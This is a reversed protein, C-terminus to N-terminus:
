LTDEVPLEPLLFPIATTLPHMYMLGGHPQAIEAQIYIMEFYEDAQTIPVAVTLIEREAIEGIGRYRLPTIRGVGRAYHINVTTLQHQEILWKALASAKGKPLICTIVAHRDLTPIV